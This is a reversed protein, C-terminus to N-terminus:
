DWHSLFLEMLVVDKWLGDIRVQEQLRGCEEFGLRRYCRIAVANEAAVRLGIKRLDRADRIDGISLRLAESGIGKGQAEPALCVGLEAHLNIADIETFQVYGLAADTQIDAVVFFMRDEGSTRAQLWKRVQREDSGRAIALLKAQLALDNRLAMLKAIDAEQWPRLRILSGDTM